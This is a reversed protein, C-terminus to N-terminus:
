STHDIKGAQSFTVGLAQAGDRLTSDYIVPGGPPVAAVPAPKKKARPKM